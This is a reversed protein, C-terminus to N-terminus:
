VFSKIAIHPQGPIRDRSEAHMDPTHVLDASASGDKCNTDMRMDSMLSQLIKSDRDSVTQATFQAPLALCAGAEQFQRQLAGLNGCCMNLAAEITQLCALLAKLILHEVHARCCCANAAQNALLPIPLSCSAISLLVCRGRM